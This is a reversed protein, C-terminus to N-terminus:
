VKKIECEGTAPNILVSITDGSECLFMVFWYKDSIAQTIDAVIKVYVEFGESGCMDKLDTEVEDVALELAQEATITFDCSACTMNAIESSGGDSITIFIVDTDNVKTCIDGAYSDDFPSAEFEGSYELDNISVTYTLSTENKSTKPMITVVGFEVTNECVGDLVYPSERLGSSFSVYWEDTQGQFYNSRIDSVRSQSLALVSNSCGYFLFGFCLLGCLVSFIIRKKM